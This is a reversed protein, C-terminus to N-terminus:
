QHQEQQLKSHQHTGFKYVDLNVRMALDFDKEGGGSVVSALHFVSIDDRDILDRVTAGNSIDGTVAKITVGEKQPQDLPEGVDFLTIADIAQKNGDPGTLEGVELLRKVLRFGIFGAGGTIVVKM